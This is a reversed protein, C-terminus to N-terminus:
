YLNIKSEDSNKLLESMLKKREANLIGIKLLLDTNVVDKEFKNRAIKHTEGDLPGTYNSLFNSIVELKAIKELPIFKDLEKNEM